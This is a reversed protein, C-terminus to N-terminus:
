DCTDNHIVCNLGSSWIKEKEKRKKKKGGSYTYQQVKLLRMADHINEKKETSSL